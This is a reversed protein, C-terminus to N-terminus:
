SGHCVGRLLAAAITQLGISNAWCGDRVVTIKQTGLMQNVGPLQTGGGWAIVTQAADRWEETAKLALRLRDALWPKVLRAYIPRLNFDRSGYNFEGSEIGKRILEVNGAKGTGLYKILEADSAIAELLDICGGAELPQHYLLTGGPSFVQPIITSTGIDIGIVHALPDLAQLKRAYAYSGAGEPVIMAVSINVRSSPKEKGKFSVIHTGNTLKFLEESFSRLSHTSIVLSLNWEQRYPISSLAGLVMHLAYQAKLAPNDSLKTHTTPAKWSALDGTLFERGILDARDGSHYFFHGGEKSTLEDLLPTKLELIKSPQRLHMQSAGSDVCLKGLGAGGDFGTPIPPRTQVMGARVPQHTAVM